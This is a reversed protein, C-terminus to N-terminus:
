PPPPAASERAIVAALDALPVDRVFRAQVQGDRVIAVFPTAGKYGLQKLRAQDADVLADFRGDAAAADLAPLDGGLTLLETRTLGARTDLREILFRDLAAPSTAAAAFAWRALWVSGADAPRVVPRLVLRITGAQLAPGLADLLPGHQQACHSCQLTYGYEVTIIATSSGRIRHADASNAESSNGARREGSGAREVVDAQVRHHFAANLGLAGLVLGTTAALAADPAVAVVVLLVLGHLTLCFPCLLELSWAVWLYFLSAGGLLGAVLCTAASWRPRRFGDFLALGSLVLYGILAPWLIDIGGLRQYFGGGQCAVDCPWWGALRIATLVAPLAAGVATARRMWTM